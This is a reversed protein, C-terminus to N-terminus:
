FIEFIEFQEADRDYEIFIEHNEMLKQNGDYFALSVKDATFKDIDDPVYYSIKNGDKLYLKRLSTKGLGSTIKCCEAVAPYYSIVIDFKKLYTMSPYELQIRPSDDVLAAYICKEITDASSCGLVSKVMVNADKMSNRSFIAISGLGIFLVAVLLVYIKIRKKGYQERVM